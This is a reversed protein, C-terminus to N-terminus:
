YGRDLKAYSFGWKGERIMMETTMAKYYKRIVARSERNVLHAAPHHFQWIVSVNPLYRGRENSLQDDRWAKYTMQNWYREDRHGTVMTASHLSMEWIMARLELPLDNFHSFEAIGSSEAQQLPEPLQASPANPAIDEIWFARKVEDSTNDDNSSNDGASTTTCWKSTNGHNSAKEYLITYTAGSQAPKDMPHSHDMM